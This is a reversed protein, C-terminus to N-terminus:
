CGFDVRCVDFGLGFGCVCLYWVVVLGPILCVVSFAFHNGAMLVLLDVSNFGLALIILRCLLAFWM